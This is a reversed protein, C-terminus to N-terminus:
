QADAGSWPRCNRRAERGSPSRRLRMTALKDARFNRSSLESTPEAKHLIAERYVWWRWIGFALSAAAIIKESHERVYSLFWSDGGFAGEWLATLPKIADKLQHGNEFFWTAFECLTDDPGCAMAVGSAYRLVSCLTSGENVALPGRGVFAFGVCQHANADGFGAAIAQEVRGIVRKTSPKALAKRQGAVSSDIAAIGTTQPSRSASLRAPCARPRRCCVAAPARGCPPHESVICAILPEKKSDMYSICGFAHHSRAM